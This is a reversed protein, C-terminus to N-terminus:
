SHHPKVPRAKALLAMLLSLISGSFISLWIMEMVISIASPVMQSDILQTLIDAMRAPNEGPMQSYFDIAMHLMDPIYTPNIWKLYIVQVVASLMSGCVFIMIGHMWLASLLSTGNDAVYARRLYYYILPPVGLILLTTVLSLLPISVSYVAAFFLATLHIAFPLGNDAGRKYPSPPPTIM